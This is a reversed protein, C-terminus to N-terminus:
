RTQWWFEANGQMNPLIPLGTLASPAFGFRKAIENARELEVVGEDWCARHWWMGDQFHLNKTGIPKHCRSCPKNSVNNGYQM